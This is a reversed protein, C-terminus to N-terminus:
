IAHALLAMGEATSQDRPRTADNDKLSLTKRAALWEERSVIPHHEM